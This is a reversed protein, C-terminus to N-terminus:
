LSGKEEPKEVLVEDKDEGLKDVYVALRMM